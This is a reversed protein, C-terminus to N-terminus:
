SFVTIDHVQILSLSYDFRQLYAGKRSMQIKDVYWNTDTDIEYMNTANVDLLAGYKWSMMNNYSTEDFISGTLKISLGIDGLPILIHNANPIAQIEKSSERSVDCTKVDLSVYATTGHKNFIVSPSAM